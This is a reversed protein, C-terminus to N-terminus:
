DTAFIRASRPEVEISSPRAKGQPREPTLERITDQAREMLQALAENELAQTEETDPNILILTRGAETDSTRLLGVLPADPATVRTQPGEENLVPTEAKMANVARVFDSIDMDTEEWDEPRTEVVHLPREFGLEYGIPMMVGSSFCAAFLYRFRQERADGGTEAAVRETDHSEPFAVSPAIRRLQEYQELLWDARFDWWKASNFFYDFGAGGLQEVADLPAGLTEAFFVLDPHADRARGILAEWVAGPVQYAADCRFGDMGVAAFHRVLADWYDLMADREPRESYDLEALDEWVTVQDPDDLDEASPSRVEGDADRAYWEPHEETLLADKSTHNIVLDMMVRLGLAHACATFHEIRAEPSEKSAGELAPHLGYYDKVAYLSGSFGPYHFPNLFVWNFGMDAIRPLQREWDAVPGVLTPFLDYIRPAETAPQM